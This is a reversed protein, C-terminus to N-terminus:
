KLDNFRFNFIKRRRALATRQRIREKTIFGTNVINFCMGLSTGSGLPDRLIWFSRPSGLPNLLIRNPGCSIIRDAPDVPNAKEGKGCVEMRMWVYVRVEVGKETERNRRQNCRSFM